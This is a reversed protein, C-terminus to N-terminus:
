RARRARLTALAKDLRRQRTEATKAGEISLVHASQNSYSLSDFFTKADPDGALLEAFDAPVAVERWEEDLDVAVDVEDGASLGTIRRIEASVPILYREGRAAITSRYTYANITVAVAPKRGRGLAMVVDEPVVLGTATKGELLLTTRFNMGPTHRDPGTM